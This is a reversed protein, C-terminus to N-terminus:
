ASTQQVQHQNQTFRLLISIIEPRTGIRIRPGWTGAGSSVVIHTNGIKKHGRSLKFVKATIYNLPWIQGHHTHGCLLLDARNEAAEALAVPQHDMVILPLSLGADRILERLSKRRTDTFSNMSVDERGCLYFHENVKVVEDRLFRIGYQQLYEVAKDAGGIYEHNGTVAYIGLHPKLKEFQRGLQKHLVPKLDEDVLDGPFLVLDPNLRTIHKVLRGVFRRGLVHGLHLDSAMVLHLEGGPYSKDIELEIRQVNIRSTNFLGIVIILFVLILVGTFIMLSIRGSFGSTVGFWGGALSLVDLLVVALFAYLMAAFWLGGVFALADALWQPLYKGLIRGFPYTIVLLWFLLPYAKLLWSPGAPQIAYWGNIYIYYNILGYLIFFVGLFIALRSGKM